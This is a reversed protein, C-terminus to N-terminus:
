DAPTASLLDFYTVAGFESGDNYPLQVTSVQGVFLTTYAMREINIVSTHMPKIPYPIWIKVFEPSKRYMVVRGSDFNGLDDLLSRTRIHLKFDKLDHADAEDTIYNNNAFYNRLNQTFLDSHRQLAKGLQTPVLMTDPLFDINFRGDEIYAALMGNMLSLLEADSLATLDAETGGVPLSVPVVKDSNFLGGKGAIGLYAVRNVFLDFAALIVDKYVSEVSQPLTQKAIKELDIFRLDYAIEFTFVPITNKYLVQM